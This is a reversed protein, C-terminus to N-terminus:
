FGVVVLGQDPVADVLAYAQGAHQVVRAAIAAGDQTAGVSGNWGDPLRLKVTLPENFWVDNLEDTLEFQVNAANM